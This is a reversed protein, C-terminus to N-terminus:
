SPSSWRLPAAGPYGPPSEARVCETVERRNL